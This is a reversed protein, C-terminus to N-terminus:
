RSGWIENQFGRETLSETRSRRKLLIRGGCKHEPESAIDRRFKAKKNKTSVKIFFLALFEILNNKSSEFVKLEEFVSQM